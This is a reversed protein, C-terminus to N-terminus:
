TSEFGPNLKCRWVSFLAHSANLHAVLARVAPTDPAFALKGVRLAPPTPRDRRLRLVCCSTQLCFRKKENHNLFFPTNEKKEFAHERKLRLYKDLSVSM